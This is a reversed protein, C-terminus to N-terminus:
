KALRKTPDDGGGPIPSESDSSRAGGTIAVKLPTKFYDAIQVLEQPNAISLLWMVMFLGDDGDYLRRLCDEM